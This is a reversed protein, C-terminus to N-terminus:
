CWQPVRLSTAGAAICAPAASAIVPLLCCYCCCVCCVACHILAAAKVCPHIVAAITSLGTGTEIALTLESIMNGADSAVVTAGLISDTGAKCLIRVFGAHAAARAEHWMCDPVTARRFFGSLPAQIYYFPAATTTMNIASGMIHM